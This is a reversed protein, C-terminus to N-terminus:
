WLIGDFGINEESEGVSSGSEQRILGSLVTQLVKALKPLVHMEAM